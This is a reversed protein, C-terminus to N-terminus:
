RGSLVHGTGHDRNVEALVVDAEAFPGIVM